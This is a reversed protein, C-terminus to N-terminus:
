LIHNVYLKNTMKYSGEDATHLRVRLTRYMQLCTAANDLCSYKEGKVASLGLFRAATELHFDPMDSRENMLAFAALCMLDITQVHFCDRFRGNGNREFWSRLFPADFASSNFGALYIKDKPNRIDINECVIDYFQAFADEQPPFNVLRSRTMGGVWLSSDAIRAGGFPRVCLEFRQQEEMGGLTEHCFIGGIRYIACREPSLGTALTDIFLLKNM